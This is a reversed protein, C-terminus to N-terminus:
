RVATFPGRGMVTGETAGTADAGCVYSTSPAAVISAGSRALKLEAVM